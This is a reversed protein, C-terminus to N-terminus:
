NYWLKGGCFSLPIFEVFVSLFLFICISLIFCISFCEAKLFISEKIWTRWNIELSPHNNNILIDSDHDNRGEKISEEVSEKYEGEKGEKIGSNVNKIGKPSLALKMIEHVEKRQVKREM